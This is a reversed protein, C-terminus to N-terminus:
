QLLTVEHLENHPLMRSGKRLLRSMNFCMAIKTNNDSFVIKTDTSYTKQCIGSLMTDPIQLHTDKQYCDHSKPYRHLSLLFGAALLVNHQVGHLM